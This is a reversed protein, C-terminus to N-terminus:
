ACIEVEAHLMDQIGDNLNFMPKWHMEERAKDINAIVDDLDTQRKEESYIPKIDSGMLQLTINVLEDISYSKGYGLNYINNKTFETALCKEIFSVVDKVYIFDRRPTGTFLELKGKKIGDIVRPIVFNPNQGKGYLNFIRLTCANMEFSQCYSQVLEEGILKTAAYPNWVSTPHKEDIPFYQPTGYVYSSIYIFDAKHNKSSELCNITGSVNTHYFSESDKYSDPVFVKAASHIMVDFQDLKKMSEANTIDYGTARCVEIIQYGNAELASKVHSGLFGTSGTIAIRKRNSSQM